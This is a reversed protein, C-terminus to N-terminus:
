LAAVLRAAIEDVHDLNIAAVNMRGDPIIYVGVEERLRRASEETVDLLAFMGYGKDIYTWDIDQRARALALALGARNRNIRDRTDALEDLWERRLAEDELITRVVNAGHDPPMSYSARAIALLLSMTANLGKGARGVLLAVGTRERYISFNKSCSLALLMEPAIDAIAAVRAADEEWGKGFGIYAADVFPMLGRAVLGEALARLGALDPDIGSPNHCGAHVIVCDGPSAADLSALIADIDIAATFRPWPYREIGAGIAGLIAGHNPWTPDPLWFRADPNLRLATEALLRVAGSGGVAQVGAFDQGMQRGPLVAQAMLEVFRPDGGVGVYTKTRQEAVLREEARKVARMIPTEGGSDKYVGIGLDVKDYRKDAAYARSIAIIQDIPQAAANEFM